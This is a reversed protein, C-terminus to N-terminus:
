IKPSLTKLIFIFAVLVMCGALVLYLANSLGYTEAAFGLCPPFLFLGTYALLSVTASAAGPSVNSCSGAVSFMIPAIPSLGLAMLGYGLFCLTLSQTGLALALGVFAIVGGLLAVPYDGWRERLDDGRLRCLITCASYFAYLLAAVSQSAGRSSHLFISGWDAVSGEAVYALLACLGCVIIFLPMRFHTGRATQMGSTEPPRLLHPVARPLFVIYFGILFFFNTLPSLNFFAFLAAGLAGAMTGMNFAAHMLTLCRARYFKEMEMCQANLAADALSMGAGCFLWMVGLQWPRFTLGSLCLSVALTLCGGVIVTASGLRSILYAAFFLSIFSAIGFCFLILGIDSETAHIQAQLAPLRGAFLGYAMGPLAFFYACALRNRTYATMLSQCAYRGTPGKKVKGTARPAAADKESSWLLPRCRTLVRM